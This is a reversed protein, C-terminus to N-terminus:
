LVPPKVESPPESVESGAIVEAIFRLKEIVPRSLVFPYLDPLGMSRNISNLGVTLDAWADLVAEFSKPKPIGPAGAAAEKTPDLRIRKGVLGFDSAVELTDHIHLFHAWTEAWDEWPHATAYVSIYADRWNGPAGNAYYVKLSREYDAQEDGFYGASRSSFRPTRSWATGIITASRM